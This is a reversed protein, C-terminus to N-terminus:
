TSTFRTEIESVCLSLLCPFGLRRVRVGGGRDRREECEQGM